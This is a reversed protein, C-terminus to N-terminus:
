KFKREICPCDEFCEYTEGQGTCVIECEGYEVCPNAYEKGVEFGLFFFLMLVM